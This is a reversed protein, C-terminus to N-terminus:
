PLPPPHFGHCLSEIKSALALAIDERWPAAVVQVGVPLKGDASTGARVTAGPWGLLNYLTVHSWTEFGDALSAGHPRALDHSPPCLIADYRSLFRLARTRATDIEELLELEIEADAGLDFQEFYGMLTSDAETTGYRELLRTIM